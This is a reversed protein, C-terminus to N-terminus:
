PRDWHWGMDLKYNEHNGSRSKRDVMNPSIRFPGRLEQCQFNSLTRRFKPDVIEFLIPDGWKFKDNERYAHWTWIHAYIWPFFRSNQNIRFLITWHILSWFQVGHCVDQNSRQGRQDGLCFALSSRQDRCIERYCTARPDIIDSFKVIYNWEYPNFGPPDRSLFIIDM